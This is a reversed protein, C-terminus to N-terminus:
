APTPRTGDDVIVAVKKGGSVMQGLRPIGVPKALAETTMERVSQAAAVHASELFHVASWKPPLSFHRRTEPGLSLYYKEGM